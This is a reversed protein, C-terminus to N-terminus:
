DNDVCVQDWNWVQAGHHHTSHFRRQTWHPWQFLNAWCLNISLNVMGDIAQMRRLHFWLLQSGVWELGSAIIGISITHFESCISWTTSLHTSSRIELTAVRARSRATTDGSGKGGGGAISKDRSVQQGCQNVMFICFLDSSITEQAHQALPRRAENFM